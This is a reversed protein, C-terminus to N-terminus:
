SKLYYGAGHFLYTIAEFLLIIHAPCPIRMPSTLFAYFIKILFDSSVLGSPLGLRQHFYPPFTHALNMQSLIPILPPIKHLRYYVKPNWLLYPIEQSASLSNTENRL